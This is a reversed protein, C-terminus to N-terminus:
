IKGATAAADYYSLVKVASEVLSRVMTQREEIVTRRLMLIQMASVAFLAISMVAIIAALRQYVTLHRM